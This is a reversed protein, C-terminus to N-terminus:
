LACRAWRGAGCGSTSAAEGAVVAYCGALNFPVDAHGVMLIPGWAPDSAPTILCRDCATNATDSEWAQCSGSTASAVVCAATFAALQAESCVSARLPVKYAPVPALPDGLLVPCPDTGRVESSSVEVRVDFSPGSADVAGAEQSAGVVSAGFDGCAVVAALMAVSVGLASAAARRGRGVGPM